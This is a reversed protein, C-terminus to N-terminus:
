IFDALITPSSLPSVRNDVLRQEIHSDNQLFLFTEVTLLFAMLSLSRHLQHEARLAGMVSMNPFVDWCASSPVICTLCRQM